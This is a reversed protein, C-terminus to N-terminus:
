IAIRGSTPYSQSRQGNCCSLQRCCGQGDNFISSSIGHIIKQPEHSKFILSFIRRSLDCRAAKEAWKRQKDLFKMKIAFEKETVVDHCCGDAILERNPSHSRNSHNDIGSSANMRGGGDNNLMPTSVNSIAINHVGDFTVESNEVNHNHFTFGEDEGCVLEELDAIKPLAEATKRYEDDPYLEIAYDYEDDDAALLEM